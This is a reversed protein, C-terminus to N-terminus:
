NLRRVLGTLGAVWLTTLMWGLIIHLWFYYQIASGWGWKIKFPLSIENGPEANPQWYSKQRLDVIPLFLDLSYFVANFKPYAKPIILLNSTHTSKVTEFKSTSLLGQSYAYHFLFSGLAVIILAYVLARHPKYGHAITIGLFRNWCRGRIGIKGYCRLDEQKGILVHMAADEHGLSRLVKALQEYPQPSFDTKLNQLRLWELRKKDDLLSEHSITEYVCDNLYIKEKQPWSKEDDKLTRIRAFRLDLEMKEPNIIGHMALTSDVRSRMLNVVGGAQFGDSLFVAGKVDIDEANLADGEPNDFKGEHCDLSGGISAGYLRVEGKAQFGYSLFVDGKVDIGEANLADKDEGLGVFKGGNCVLNGGITARYLRVLGEAQFGDRLLVFGKINIGAANLADGQLGVFKGGHCDLDRDITSGQLNVMGEAHFGDSFFVNGKINIGAANLATGQPNAFKGGHCDLSGVITAGYLRVEGEAQFENRLFVNGKINIGEANLAYEQLNVFKGGDCELDGGITARYLRVLGESQFGNCLLIASNVDIGEANLAYGQPNVFKGGECSLIGGIIAGSLNVEGESKFGKHLFLNGDIEILVANMSPVHSGDLELSLIKAQKLLIPETFVCKSFVLPFDVRAFELNLEGQVKVGLINIGRFTLLDTARPETCLWILRDSQLARDDTWIHANGPEDIEKFGINSVNYNAAKGNSVARFLREEAGNLRGFEARALELLKEEKPM